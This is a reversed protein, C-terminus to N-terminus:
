YEHNKIFNLLENKEFFLENVPRNLTYSLNNFIGSNKIKINTSKWYFSHVDFCKIAYKKFFFSM